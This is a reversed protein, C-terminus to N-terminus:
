QYMRLFRGKCDRFCGFISETPGCRNDGCFPAEFFVQPAAPATQMEPASTHMTDEPAPVTDPVNTMISMLPFLFSPIRRLVMTPGVLPFIAPPTATPPLTVSPLNRPPVFGPSTAGGMCDTPCIMMNENGNCFGDGCQAIVVIPGSSAGGTTTVPPTPAPTVPHCDVPCSM